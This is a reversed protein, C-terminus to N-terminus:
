KYNVLSDIKDFVSQADKNEYVLKIAETPCNNSCQGCGICIDQNISIKNDDIKIADAFCVDLCKYCNICESEDYELHVGPLKFFDNQIEDSLKPYVRWLCCCPCCNCITLLEEGPSVNMWVRDMRNRGMIHILGAKNAKNIHEIAEQKTAEHCHRRSIKRTTKGIFICGLDRPYDDCKTSTRCLCENMIVIDNAENIVSIIFDSPMVISESNDIKINVDIEEINHNKVSNNSPIFYTGDDRFLIFKIIKNIIKSKRTLSAVKFRLHFIRHVLPVNIDIMRIRKM